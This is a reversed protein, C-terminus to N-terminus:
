LGLGGQLRLSIELHAVAAGTRRRNIIRADLNRIASAGAPSWFIRRWVADRVEDRARGDVQQRRGVRM